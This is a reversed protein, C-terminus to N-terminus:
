SAVAKRADLLAFTGERAVVASPDIKLEHLQVFRENILLHTLRYQHVLTGVPVQLVPFFPTYHRLHGFSSDTSLVRAKTFYMTSDALYLPFTALRVQGAAGHLGNIRAFMQRLTPTVSRDTDQMIVTRQLFLSPLLGGLVAVGVVGALVWGGWPTPLWWWALAGIAVAAPAAAYELYREGEGIFELAKVMRIAMAAVWLVGCWQVVARAAAPPLGLLDWRGTWWAWAGAFVVITAWPDAGIVALWPANRIAQYIRFVVDPTATASPKPLGRIQHAYRHHINGRWWTLMAVHGALIKLYLGQSLLVALALGALLAAGYRWAGACFGMGVVFVLLAQLAMRHTLVLMGIGLVGAAGWGWQGTIGWAVLSSAVLTFLLSACSRTTLSANEMIVIPTTAYVMQALWGVAPVHTLRWALVFIVVSHLADWAPSVLWQYEELVRKPIVALAYRFLPPYDCPEDILYHEPMLGPYRRHQRIHEAVALHRWTDIGFYRNALRPRIQIWGSLLALAVAILWTM